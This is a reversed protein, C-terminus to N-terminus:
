RRRRVEVTEGDTVGVNDGVTVEITVEVSEGVAVGSGVTMKEGGFIVPTGGDLSPQPAAMNMDAITSGDVRVGATARLRSSCM